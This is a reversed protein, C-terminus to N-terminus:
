KNIIPYQIGLQELYTGYKSPDYYYKKLQERYQDMIGKNLYIAPPDKETIFPKYQVDKTQVEKYYKKAESIVSPDNFCDL